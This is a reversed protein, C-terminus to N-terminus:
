AYLFLSWVFNCLPGTAASRRLVDRLGMHIMTNLMRQLRCWSFFYTGILHMEDPRPPYGM